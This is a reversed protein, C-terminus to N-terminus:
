EGILAPDGSTEETNEDKSVDTSVETSAAVCDGTEDTVEGAECEGPTEKPGVAATRGTTYAALFALFAAARAEDDESTVSSSAFASSATRIVHMTEEREQVATELEALGRRLSCRDHYDFLRDRALGLPFVSYPQGLGRVIEDRATGRSTRITTDLLEMAQDAFATRDVSASTATSMGSIAAYTQATLGTSLSGAFGSATSVLDSTLRHGVQVGRLSSLYTNCNYESLALVEAIVLNRFRVAGCAAPNSELIALLHHFQESGPRLQGESLQANAPLCFESPDRGDDREGQRSSVMNLHERLADTINYSVQDGSLPRLPLAETEYTMIQGADSQFGTSVCGSAVVCAAALILRKM